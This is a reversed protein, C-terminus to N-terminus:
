GPGSRRKFNKGWWYTTGKYHALTVLFFYLRGFSTLFIEPFLSVLFSSSSFFQCKNLITSILSNGTVKILDWNSPLALISYVQCSLTFLVCSHLFEHCTKFAFAPSKVHCHILYDLSFIRILLRQTHAQMLCHVFYHRFRLIKQQATFYSSFRVRRYKRKAKKKESLFVFIGIKSLLVMESHCKCCSVSLFSHSTKKPKKQVVWRCNFKNESRYHNLETGRAGQALWLPCLNRRPATRLHAATSSILQRKGRGCYEKNTSGLTRSDWPAQRPGRKDKMRIAPVMSPEAEGGYHIIWWPCSWPSAAAGAGKQALELHLGGCSGHPWEKTKKGRM